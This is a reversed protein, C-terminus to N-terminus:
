RNILPLFVQSPQLTFSWAYDGGLTRGDEAQVGNAGGRLTASATGKLPLSPTFGVGIVKNSDNVLGFGIEYGGLDRETNQNWKVLLEGAQPVATLGTPVAPARQDDVSIVVDSAQYVPSNQGDDVIVVLRYKGSGVESFDETDSGAGLPKDEALPTIAAFDINNKDGTDTM